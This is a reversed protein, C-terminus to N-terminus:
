LLRELLRIRGGLEFFDEAFGLLHLAPYLLLLANLKVQPLVVGYLSEGKISLGDHIM